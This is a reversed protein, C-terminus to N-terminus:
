LGLIWVYLICLHQQQMSAYINFHILTHESLCHFALVPLFHYNWLGSYYFTLLKFRELPM